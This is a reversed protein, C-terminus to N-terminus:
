SPRLGAIIKGFDGTSELFFGFNVASDPHSQLAMRQYLHAALALNM